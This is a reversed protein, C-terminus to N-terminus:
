LLVLQFIKKRIINNLCKFEIINNNENISLIEILSSCLPCNFGIEEIQLSESSITEGTDYYTNEDNSM